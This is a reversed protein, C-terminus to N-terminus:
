QKYLLYPVCLISIPYVLGLGGGLAIYKFNHLLKENTSRINGNRFEQNVKNCSYLGGGVFGINIAYYTSKLYLRYFNM